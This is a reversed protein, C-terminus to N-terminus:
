YVFERTVKAYAYLAKAMEAAALYEAKDEASVGEANAATLMGNIYGALSYTATIGNGDYTEKPSTAGDTNYLVIRLNEAMNYLKFPNQSDFMTAAVYYTINSEDKNWDAYADLGTEDYRAYLKGPRPSENQMGIYAFMGTGAYGYYGTSSNSPKKIGNVTAEADESFVIYFRPQNTSFFFGGSAIWKSPSKLSEDVDTEPNDAIVDDYTLKAVDNKYIDGELFESDAYTRVYTPFKELLKTYVQAGEDGTKDVNLNKIIANAYNVMNMVLTKAEENTSDRMIQAAYYPVGYSIDKYLETEGVTYYIRYTNISTDAVGYADGGFKMYPEAYVTCEGLSGVAITNTEGDLRVIRISEKYADLYELPVFINLEYSTYLTLNLKIAEPTGEKEVGNMNPYVKYTGSEPLAVASYGAYELDYWNHETTVDPIEVTPEYVKSYVDEGPKYNESDLLEGLSDYWEVVAADIYIPYTSINGDNDTDCSASVVFVEKGDELTWASLFKGGVAEQYNDPDASEPVALVSGEVTNGEANIGFSEDVYTLKYTQYAMAPVFQVGGEIAVGVYAGSRFGGYTKGNTMLTFPVNVDIVGDYDELLKVTSGNKINAQASEISHYGVGDVSVAYNNDPMNLVFGNATLSSKNKIIEALAANAAVDDAFYNAHYFNDLGIANGVTAATNTGDNNTSSQLRMTDFTFTDALGAIVDVDRVSNVTTFYEGNVYIYTKTGSFNYADYKVGNLTIADKKFQKDVAVIVTIRTWSGDTPIKTTDSYNGSQITGDQYVTFYNDKGNTITTDIYYNEPTDGNAANYTVTAARNIATFAVRMFTGNVAAIDFEQVMYTAENVKQTNTVTKFSAELADKATAYDGYAKVYVRSSSTTNDDTAKSFGTLKTYGNMQIESYGSAQAEGKNFQLKVYGNGTGLHDDAGSITSAINVGGTTTVSATFVSNYPSAPAANYKSVTPNYATTRNSLVDATVYSYSPKTYPKSLWAAGYTTYGVNDNYVKLNDYKTGEFKALTGNVDPKITPATVFYVDSFLVGYWDDDIKSDNGNDALAGYAHTYAISGPYVKLGFGGTTENYATSVVKCDIYGGNWKVNVYEGLLWPSGQICDDSTTYNCDNFILHGHTFGSKAVTTSVTGGDATEVDASLQNATNSPRWVDNHGTIARTAGVLECDDFTAYVPNGVLTLLRGVYVNPAAATFQSRVLYDGSQAILTSNDADIFIEPAVATKASMDDVFNGVTGGNNKANEVATTYVYLTESVTKYGFKFLNGYNAEIHSDLVTVNVPGSIVALETPDAYKGGTTAWKQLESAPNEIIFEAGIFELNGATMSIVTGAANYPKVTVKGSFSLTDGAFTFIKQIKQEVTGSNISPNASLRDYVDDEDTDVRYSDEFSRTEIRIGDGIGIFSINGGGANANGLTGINTFTGEGKITLTTNATNNGIIAGSSRLSKVTCGNMDITLDVNTVWATSTSIVGAATGAETDVYNPNLYVTPDERAPVKKVAALADNWTSYYVGNVIFPQTTNVDEASSAFVIGCVLTCVALVLVLIKGLKKM